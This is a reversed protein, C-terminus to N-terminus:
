RDIDQSEKPLVSDVVFGSHWGGVVRRSKMAGPAPGLWRDVVATSEQAGQIVM